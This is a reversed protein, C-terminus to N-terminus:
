SPDQEWSVGREARVHRELLETVNHLAVEADTASVSPVGDEEAASANLWSAQAREILRTSSALWAPTGQSAIAQETEPEFVSSSGDEGLLGAGPSTSDSIAPFEEVLQPHAWCTVAPAPPPYGSSMSPYLFGYMAGADAFGPDSRADHVLVYSPGSRAVGDGLQRLATQSYNHAPGSVAFSWAGLQTMLASVQGVGVCGSYERGSRLLPSSAFVLAGRDGFLYGHCLFHVVDASRGGLADRIWLLWPNTVDHSDDLEAEPGAPEYRRADAPDYVFVRAPLDAARHRVDPYAVSDTFLHLTVERPVLDAIAGALRVLDDAPFQSRVTPSSACLVVDLTEVASRPRLAFYPLRLVARGVVPVLWQEWPLSTLYGSPTPFELWVSSRSGLVARWEAIAAKLRPPLERVADVGALAATDYGIGLESTPCSALPIPADNGLQLELEATAASPESPRAQLAALSREHGHALRIRLVALDNVQRLLMAM